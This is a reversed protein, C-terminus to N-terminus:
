NKDFGGKQYQEKMLDKLGNRDGSIISTKKFKKLDMDVSKSEKM